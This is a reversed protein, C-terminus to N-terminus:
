FYPFDTIQQECNSDHNGPGVMYPKQSTIPTMEDYFQNLLSEYVHFGDAVSTNPLFGQVEEKLWYDAYAIDGALLHRDVFTIRSFSIRFERHWLFDFDNHQQLSQITNIEGPLLPNAAGVGVTTSLGDPGILGLDVALAVVFPTHDGKERATTFSFISTNNSFAPRWFYETNPFLNTLRVHNNFTLSTPYTVSQGNEPSSTFPLVDPRFGFQVTPSAPLKSFTNWSVMMGTPGAYASRIQVPEFADEPVRVHSVSPLQASFVFSAFTAVLLQRLLM